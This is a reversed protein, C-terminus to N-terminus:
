AANDLYTPALLALVLKTSRIRRHGLDVELGRLAKVIVLDQFSCQPLLSIADKDTQEPHMVCVAAASFALILPRLGPPSNNFFLLAPNNTHM